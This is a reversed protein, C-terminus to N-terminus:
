RFNGPPVRCRPQNGTASRAPCRWCSRSSPEGREYCSDSQQGGNTAQSTIRQLVVCRRRRGPRHANALLCAVAFKTESHRSHSPLGRHAAPRSEPFREAGLKAPDVFPEDFEAL